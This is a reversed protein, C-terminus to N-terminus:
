APGLAFSTPLERQRKSSPMFITIRLCRERCFSPVDPHVDRATLDARLEQARRQAESLTSARASEVLTGDAKVALGVFALARNLNARMPDFRQAERAYREPMMAERIFQLIARRNRSYNQTEVFANHLREM